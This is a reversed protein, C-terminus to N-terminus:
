VRRHEDYLISLAVRGKRMIFDKSMVNYLLVSPASLHVGSLFHLFVRTHELAFQVSLLSMNEGRDWDNLRALATTSQM